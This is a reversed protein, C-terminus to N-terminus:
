HSLDGTTGRVLVANVQRKGFATRWGGRTQELIPAIPCRSLHRPRQTPHRARNPRSGVRRDAAGPAAPQYFSPWGTGSDFKSDSSFLASGCCVCHYVGEDKCASYAGTFAPETGKERLIRYQEPTLRKRWDTKTTDTRQTM